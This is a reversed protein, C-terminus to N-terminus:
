GLAWTIVGVVARGERGEDMKERGEDRKRGKVDGWEHDCYPKCNASSLSVWRTWYELTLSSWRM